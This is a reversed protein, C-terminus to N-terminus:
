LLVEVTFYKELEKKAKDVEEKGGDSNIEAYENLEEDTLYLKGEIIKDLKNCIGVIECVTGCSFGYNDVFNNIDEKDSFDYERSWRIYEVIELLVLGKMYEISYKEGNIERILTMDFLKEQSKGIRVRYAVRDILNIGDDIIDGDILEMTLKIKKM